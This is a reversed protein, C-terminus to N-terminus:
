YTTKHWRTKLTDNYLKQGHMFWGLWRQIVEESVSDCGRPQYVDETSISYFAITIILPRDTALVSWTHKSRVVARYVKGKTCM